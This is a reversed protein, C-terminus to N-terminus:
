SHRVFRSSRDDKCRIEAGYPMASATASVAGPLSLASGFVRSGNRRSCRAFDISDGVIRGFRRHSEDIICSVLQSLPHPLFAQSPRRVRNHMNAAALQIAARAAGANKDKRHRKPKARKSRSVGLFAQPGRLPEQFLLHAIRPLLQMLFVILRQIQGYAGPLAILQMKFALLGVSACSNAAGQADAGVRSVLILNFDIADVLSGEKDGV